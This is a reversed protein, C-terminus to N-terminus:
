KCGKAVHVDNFRDDGSPLYPVLNLICGTKYAYVNARSIVPITAAQDSIERALDQMVAVRGADNGAMGRLKNIIEDIKPSTAGGPAYPGGTGVLEFVTQVPDSRGGYRAMLVDGRPPDKFFLPFQSVDVVDFKVRIGVEALNAQLAEALQRYESNNLLLQTLEIGDKYGAEALLARAKNQDFPYRAELDKVFYPSQASWLQRAPQASGNSIAEALGERDIAYMIAQRV